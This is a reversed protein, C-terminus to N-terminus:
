FEKRAFGPGNLFAVDDGRQGIVFMGAREALALANDPVIMAALAAYLTRDKYEPFLRRFKELREAHELVDESGLKSKVEVVVVDTDNVAILDVQAAEDGRRAALDRHTAHVEIDVERFLRVLGPRVMGEVFEGLRNGLGGIQEGLLKLRRDTERGRRDAEIQSRLFLEKIDDFSVNDQV